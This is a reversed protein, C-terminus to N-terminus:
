PTRYAAHEDATPASPDARSGEASVDGEPEPGNDCAHEPREGGCEMADDPAGAGEMALADADGIGAM